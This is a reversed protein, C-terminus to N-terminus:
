TSVRGPIPIAGPHLPYLDQVKQEAFSVYAVEIRHVLEEQLAWTTSFEFDTKIAAGDKWIKALIYGSQAITFEKVIFEYRSAGNVAYGPSSTRDVDFSNVIQIITDSEVTDETEEGEVVVPVLKRVPWFFGGQGTDTGVPAAPSVRTRTQKTVGMVKRSRYLQQLFRVTPDDILYPM